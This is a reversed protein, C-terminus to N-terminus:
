CNVGATRCYDVCHLSAPADSAPTHRAAPTRFCFTSHRVALNLFFASKGCSVATLGESFNHSIWPNFTSMGRLLAV